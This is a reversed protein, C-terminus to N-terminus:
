RTWLLYWVFASILVVCSLVCIEARKLWKHVIIEREKHERLLSLCRDQMQQIKDQKGDLLKIYQSLETKQIQLQKDLKKNQELVDDTIRKQAFIAQSRQDKINNKLEVSMDQMDKLM